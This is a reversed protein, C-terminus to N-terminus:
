RLLRGLSLLTQLMEFERIFVEFYLIFSKKVINYSIICFYTVNFLTNPIYLSSATNVHYRKGPVSKAAARSALLIYTETTDNM